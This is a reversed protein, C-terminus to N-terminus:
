EVAHEDGPTHAGATLAACQHTYLIHGRLPHASGVRQNRQLTDLEVEVEPRNEKEWKDDEAVCSPCYDKM